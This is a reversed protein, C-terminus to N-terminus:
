AAEAAIPLRRVIDRLRAPRIKVNDYTAFTQNVTWAACSHAQLGAIYQQQGM